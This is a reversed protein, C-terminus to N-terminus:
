SKKTLVFSGPPLHAGAKFNLDIRAKLVHKDWWADSEKRSIFGSDLLSNYIGVAEGVAIYTMRGVLAFVLMAEEKSLILACHDNNIVIDSM